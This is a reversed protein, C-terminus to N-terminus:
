LPLDICALGVIIGRCPGCSSVKELGLWLASFTSMRRVEVSAGIACPRTDESVKADRM